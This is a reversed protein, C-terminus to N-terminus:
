AIPTSVPNCDQHRQITLMRASAELLSFSFRVHRASPLRSRIMNFQMPRPQIRLRVPRPHLSQRFVALRLKRRQNGIQTRVTRQAASLPNRGPISAPTQRSFSLGGIRIRQFRCRGGLGQERFGSRRDRYHFCSMQRLLPEALTKAVALQGTCVLGLSDLRSRPNRPIRRGKM